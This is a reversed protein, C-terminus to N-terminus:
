NLPWVFLGSLKGLIFTLGAFMTAAFWRAGKAKNYVEVLDKVNKSLEAIQGQSTSMKEELRVLRELLEREM